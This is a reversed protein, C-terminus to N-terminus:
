GVVRAAMSLGRLTGSIGTLATGTRGFPATSMNRSVGVGSSSGTAAVRGVGRYIGVRPILKGPPAPFFESTTSRVIAM